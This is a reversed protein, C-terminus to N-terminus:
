RNEHSNILRDINVGKTFTTEFNTNPTNANYDGIRNNESTMIRDNSLSHNENNGKLNIDRCHSMWPNFIHGFKSSEESSTPFSVTDTDTEVEIDTDIYANTHIYIM